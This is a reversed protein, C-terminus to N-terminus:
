SAHGWRAAPGPNGCNNLALHEEADRKAKALADTAKALHRLRDTNQWKAVAKAAVRIERQLVPCTVCGPTVRM